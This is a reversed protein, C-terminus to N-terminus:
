RRDFGRSQILEAVNGADSVVFFLFVTGAKNCEDLLVNLPM